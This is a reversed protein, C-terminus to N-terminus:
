LLKSLNIQMKLTIPYIKQIKIVFQYGNLGSYGNIYTIIQDSIKVEKTCNSIHTIGCRNMVNIDNANESNGLWIRQRIHTPHKIYHHEYKSEEFSNHCFTCKIKARPSDQLKRTSM